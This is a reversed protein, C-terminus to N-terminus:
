FAWSLSGTFIYRNYNFLVPLNARSITAQFDGALTLNLPLPYEVRAVHNQEVVNQRVTNPATVPFSSNLAPYRRLHLDFNYKLRLDQWPLTYQSGVLFRHGHYAWNPGEADDTDWQYGLQILHKDAQFRFLHSIGAMWNTADRNEAPINGAGILFIDSFDKVQVRGQIQTLHGASDVLTASM